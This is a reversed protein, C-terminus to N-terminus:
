PAYTNLWVSRSPTDGRTYSNNYPGSQTHLPKGPPDMDQPLWNARSANGRSNMHAAGRTPDVGSLFAERAAKMSSEYAARMTPNRLAEPSPETPLMTGANKQRDAGWREDANIISHAWKQRAV